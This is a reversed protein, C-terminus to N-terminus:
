TSLALEPMGRWTEELFWAMGLVKRFHKRLRLKEQAQLFTMRAAIVQIRARGCWFPIPCVHSNSEKLIGVPGPDLLFVFQSELCVLWHCFGLYYLVVESLPYQM